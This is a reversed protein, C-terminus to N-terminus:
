QTAISDLVPLKSARRAPAIAALLGFLAAIVIFLLLQMWPVDLTGIGDDANARQLVVGFILGLAVGLISGMVTVLVSELSIMRRIQKRTTGVARLLGIERTREIVSLSLTNVIGLVSIVLALALLGYLLGVIEQFQDIRDQVYQSVDSVTITKVEDTAKLLGQRVQDLNAGDKAFVVVRNVVTLENVKELTAKNLTIPALAGDDDALGTVLLQQSGLAGTVEFTMGLSLNHDAAFTSSVVASDADNTMTGAVIDTASAKLLGRATTGVVPVSEEDGEVAVESPWFSASWDVGSVADVDNVLKGDFPTFSIPAVLFDGRQDESLQNRLSVTVSSALVAITTVLALGITLTASTAATRRPQRKSNREALEGIQRFVRRFLWGGAWIVPAGLFPAALVAGVLMLACGIGVWWLPYPVDIWVGCVIVAIAIEILVVGALTFAGGDKEEKPQSAEALAEVPRARSARIAPILAAVMTVVIGVVYSILVSQWTLQPAADGLDVGVFGMLALLGWVLLYGVGIGFTAGIVGMIVAELLVSGRVQSRTAGIARLVAMERARQAVLISFTNLILLAAILLAIAAFILLFNNIFGMGTNLRDRIDNAMSAGTKVTWDGDLVDAVHKAVADADAGADISIWISQYVNKGDVFLRQAEPLTFFLYSAGATSGSGYTGTGVLTFEQVGDFPTAIRVKDGVRYGAREVSGPDVVVERDSKPEHGEVIRTSTIGGAAPTTHWNAAIGPAGPIGVVRDDKDLLYVSTRGVQGVATTVGAIDQVKKLDAPTLFQTSEAWTGHGNATATADSVNVDAVAAQVIEDFGRSLLNTFMLSGAVFAIGLVISLASLVLRFKRAFLSKLTARWM